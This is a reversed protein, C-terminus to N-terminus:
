TSDNTIRSLPRSPQDEGATIQQLARLEEILGAMDSSAFTDYGVESLLSLKPFDPDDRILYQENGAEDCKAVVENNKDELIVTIMTSAFSLHYFCFVPFAGTFAPHSYRICTRYSRLHRSGTRSRTMRRGDRSPPHLTSLLVDPGAMSSRGTRKKPLDILRTSRTRATHAPPPFVVHFPVYV